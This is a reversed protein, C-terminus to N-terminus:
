SLPPTDKISPPPTTPTAAAKVLDTVHVAAKGPALYVVVLAQQVRQRARHARRTVAFGNDLTIRRTTLTRDAWVYFEQTAIRSEM